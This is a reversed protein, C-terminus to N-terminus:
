TDEQDAQAGCAGSPSLAGIFVCAVVISACIRIVSTTYEGIGGCEVDVSSEQDSEWIWFGSALGSGVQFIVQKVRDDKSFVTVHEIHIFVQKAIQLEDQSWLHSRSKVIFGNRNYEGDTIVNHM